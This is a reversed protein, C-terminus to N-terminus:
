NEGERDFGDMIDVLITNLIVLGKESCRICYGDNILHNTEEYSQFVKCAINYWKENFRERYEQINLGDKMRLGMMISEFAQDKETLITKEIELTKDIYQNIRFPIHYYVGDEMGYAGCGIGKFDKYKWYAQNHISRGTPKAFNSIEYHEYGNNILIECAKEYMDAELDQDCPQVGSRGFKSNPEITLSYISIHDIEKLSAALLLDEEWIELTQNPLGYILDISIHEIGKDKIKRLLSLVDNSTHKRNIAKLLVDNFSQVGLSIRNIHSNKIIELKEDTLNEPNAEITWEVCEKCTRDLRDIILSLENKNLSTPTGGGIYCTMYTEDLEDIDMLIRSLWKKRLLAQNGCREFDCYSCISDCFPIHVYLHETKM